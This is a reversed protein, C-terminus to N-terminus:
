FRPKQYSCPTFSSFYNTSYYIPKCNIVGEIQGCMWEIYDRSNSVPTKRQFLILKYISADEVDNLINFSSSVFLYSVNLHKALSNMVPIDCISPIVFTYVVYYTESSASSRVVHMMMPNMNIAKEVDRQSVNIVVAATEGVCKECTCRHFRICGTNHGRCRNRCSISGGPSEYRILDAYEPPDNTTIAMATVPDICCRNYWFSFYM